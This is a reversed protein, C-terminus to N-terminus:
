RLVENLSGTRYGQLDLTIYLFGLAKLKKVIKGRIEDKNLRKIQGPLVEIRAADGHCRVRVQKFGMGQLFYEATEIRKLKDVEIKDGYPFRSALCAMAPKDWTALGLKKSFVRIDRKSFGADQLPSSVGHKEKAKAGPRYDYLDDINSADSVFDFGKKNAISKLEGFLEDKCYFCRNGPNSSFEPNKLEQTDIILHRVGITKANEKADKLESAQYTPSKATVALVNEKGLTDVAVKILFTSDAGGSYAILVKNMKQLVKELKKLKTM